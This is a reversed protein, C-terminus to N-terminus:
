VRILLRRLCASLNLPQPVPETAATTLSGAKLFVASGVYCDIADAVAITITNVQGANVPTTSTVVKTEGGYPLLDGYTNYKNFYLSNAVTNLNNTSVPTNTGPLLARSTGNV